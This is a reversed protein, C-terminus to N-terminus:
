EDGTVLKVGVYGHCNNCSTSQDHCDLCTEETDAILAPNETGSVLTPHYAKWHDLGSLGSMFVKGIVPITSYPNILKDGGSTINETHSEPPEDMEIVIKMQGTADKSPKEVKQCGFVMLIGILFTLLSLRSLPICFTSIRM